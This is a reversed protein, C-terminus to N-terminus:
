NRDEGRKRTLARVDALPGIHRLKDPNMVSRVTQVLGDSIDLTMIHTLRGSPDLVLVGPQGNIETRCVSVGLDRWGAGLGFMLRAGPRASSQVDGPRFRETATATFSRM